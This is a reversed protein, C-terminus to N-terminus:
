RYTRSCLSATPIKMKYRHCVTLLLLKGLKLIGRVQMIEVQSKARLRGALSFGALYKFTFEELHRM